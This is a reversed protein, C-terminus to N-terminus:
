RWKPIEGSVRSKSGVPRGCNKISWSGIGSNIHGTGFTRRRAPDSEAPLLHRGMANGSRSDVSQSANCCHVTATEIVQRTPLRRCRGFRRSAPRSRGNTSLVLRGTRLSTTPFFYCSNGIRRDAFSHRHRTHFLSDDAAASHGRSALEAFFVLLWDCRDGQLAPGAPWDWEAGANSAM